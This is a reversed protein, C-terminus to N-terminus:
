AAKLARQRARRENRVDPGAGRGRAGGAGIVDTVSPCTVAAAGNIVALSVAVAAHALPAFLLLGFALLSKLSPIPFKPNPGWPCDRKKRSGAVVDLLCSSGRGGLSASAWGPKGNV